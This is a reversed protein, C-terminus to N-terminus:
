GLTPSKTARAALLEAIAEVNEHSRILEQFRFQPNLQQIRVKRAMYSRYVIIGFLFLVLMLAALAMTLSILPFPKHYFPKNLLRIRDITHPTIKPLGKIKSLKEMADNLDKITTDNALFTLPPLTWAWKLPSQEKYLDNQRNLIFNKTKAKCFPPVKIKTVASLQHGRIVSRNQCEFVFSSPHAAYYLFEDSWKTM